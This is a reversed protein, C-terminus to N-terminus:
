SKKLRFLKKYWFVYVLLYIVIILFLVLSSKYFCVAFSDAILSPVIIVMASIPNSFSKILPLRFNTINIYVLSHMHAHDASTMSTSRDGARRYMSFLTEIIPYLNLVIAVWPSVNQNRCVLLISLLGVLMGILYAGGDGLFIRGFPFNFIVFGLVSSAILLSLYTLLSDGLHFSIITLSILTSLALLSALGNLGDSINYANTVGILAFLTFVIAIPQIDFITNLMPIGVSRILANNFYIELAAGLGILILRTKPSVKKSIDEYTGVLFAPSSCIIILTQINLLTAKQLLVGIVMGIFIAVGGVRPIPEHHIKQPLHFHDDGSIHIHHENFVIIFFCVSASVLFACLLSIISIM